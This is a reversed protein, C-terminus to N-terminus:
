SERKSLVENIIEILKEKTTNKELYKLFAVYGHDMKEYFTENENVSDDTDFEMKGKGTLIWNVNANPIAGLIKKLVNMGLPKNQSIIPHLTTYLIDNKLCFQRLNIEKSEILYLLREGETQM